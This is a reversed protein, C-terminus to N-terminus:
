GILKLLNQPLQNAQALVAIGAQLQVQATAFATSEASIDTDLLVGRAADQNQLSSQVNAAAFDFRSQLAGVEARVSTVAKIALDLADSAIAASEATLVDLKLGGYITETSINNIGIKLTDSTTTGVQFNIKADGNGVGFADKLAQEFTAAKADTAFDIAVNGTNFTLTKNSDTASILTISANAGLASGVNAASTYEEGNISVVLSGNTNSGTPASVRISDISVNTFDTGQLEFSTGILTGTQVGDTFISSDGTYSDVERNQYFSLSKLAANLRTAMEDADAAGSVALGENAALEIDFYGGNESSLRVTTDSTPNTTVDLSTYTHEGITVSLDVTNATSTYTATIGQITGVFADNTIGTTTIGGTDGSNLVGANSVSAGTPLNTSTITVAAGAQDFVDGVDKSRIIIDRGDRVAEVQNLVYDESDTGNYANIKAVMNDLTEELTAGILAEADGTGSSSFGFQVGGITIDSIATNGFNTADNLDAGAIQPFSITVESKVQNQNTMIDNGVSGVGVTDGAGIGADSAGQITYIQTQTTATNATATLSGDVAAFVVLIRNDAATDLDINTHSFQINYAGASGVIRATYGNQETLANVKNVIDDLSDDDAVLGTYTTAGGQAVSTLVLDGSQIQLTATAAAAAVSETTSSAVIANVTFSNNQASAGGGSNVTVAGAAAVHTGGILSFKEGQTGGADATAVLSTGNAEFTVGSFVTSTHANLADALSQVTENVTAGITYDVGATLTQNNAALGNGFILTQAGTNEVLFNISMSASAAATAVDNVNVKESLSGNLLSVGNFNTQDVIRDIEQTLNQFEQNLFSREQSTLSGAGAQVAISKQRQLIDTVQSLAGDAVQLLSSGQATNVLAMRLTTVNTRLSTGASMAAVDDSARVIRNGSSLRAISSSAMDSAKGINSQAMYAAINTNISNLAM